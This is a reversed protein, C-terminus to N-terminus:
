WSNMLRYEEKAVLDSQNRQMHSNLTMVDMVSSSMYYSM